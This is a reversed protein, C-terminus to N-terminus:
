EGTLQKAAIYAQSAQSVTEFYGLHKGNFKARYPNLINGTESVGQVGLGSDSRVSKNFMNTSRTVLRLNDIVDDGKIRNRHDVELEIPIPGFHMIWILHHRQYKKGNAIRVNVYGAKSLGGAESGAKWKGNSIKRYLKGNRYEFMSHLLEATLEPHRVM